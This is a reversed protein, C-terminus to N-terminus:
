ALPACAMVAPTSGLVASPASRIKVPPRTWTTSSCFWSASASATAPSRMRSAPLITLTSTPPDAGRSFLRTVPGLIRAVGRGERNRSRASWRRRSDSMRRDDISASRSFQFPRKSSKFRTSALAAERRRPTRSSASVEHCYPSPARTAATSHIAVPRSGFTSSTTSDALTVRVSSRRDSAIFSRASGASRHRM